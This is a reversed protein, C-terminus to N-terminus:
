KKPAIIITMQNGSQTPMSEAKAINTLNNAIKLLIEFCKDKSLYIERGKTKMVLKVKHGDELFERIKREKTSLDNPSINPTFEMQKMDKNNQKKELDKKRKNEDFIYKQYDCIRVVPPNANPSIELLDLNMGDAISLAKQLTIVEGPNSINDGILRVEISTIEKNKRM